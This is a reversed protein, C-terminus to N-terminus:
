KLLIIVDSSITVDCLIIILHKGWFNNANKGQKKTGVM